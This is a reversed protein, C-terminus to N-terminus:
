LLALLDALNDVTADPREFDHRPSQAVHVGQRVRVTRFGLSNAPGIDNDIRDGIMVANEPSCGAQGLALHFIAPEPKAVGTEASALFVEFHDRLGHDALRESSGATQNAIIGLRYRAGLASLVTDVDPYPQELEAPYPLQARLEAADVRGQLLDVLGGLFPGPVFRRAADEYAAIIEAVTAIIGYGALVSVAAEARALVAPAEDMLTYGIDFFLWGVGAFPGAM